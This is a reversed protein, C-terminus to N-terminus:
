HKLNQFSNKLTDNLIIFQKDSEERYALKRGADSRKYVIEQEAKKLREFTAQCCDDLPEGFAHSGGLNTQVAPPIIEYAQINPIENALQYRLSM